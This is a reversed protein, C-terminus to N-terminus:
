GSLELRHLGLELPAGPRPRCRGPARDPVVEHDRASAIASSACRWALARLLPRGGLSGTSRRRRRVGAGTTGVRRRRGARPRRRRASRRRCRASSRRRRRCRRRVGARRLLRRRRPRWCGAWSRRLSGAGAGVGRRAAGAGAGAAVPVPPPALAGAGSARRGRPAACRAAAVAAVRPPQRARLLAVAPRGGEHDRHAHGVVLRPAAWGARRPEIRIPGDLLSTRTSSSASASRRRSSARARACTRTARSAAARACRGRHRRAARARPDPRRRGVGDPECVANLLAHIGYSRYVYAIGPPGFLPERARADAGVYAHCAPESEHYAETEVIVGATDGHRVICGVLDRRSTSCRATTSAAAPRTLWRARAPASSSSARRAGAVHRGRSVKSELWSRQARARERSRTASSGACARLEDADARGAGGSDVAERVLGAVVGHAERFPVGRKVLLDALDTAAILEDAAAAAMASATSARAARDDRAAAALCLELTDVADFLHEKDEQLDKNYTLPLAHM